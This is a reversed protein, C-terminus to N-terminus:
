HPLRPTSQHPTACSLLCKQTGLGFKMAVVTIPKCVSEWSTTRYNTNKLLSISKCKRWFRKQSVQEPPLDIPFGDYEKKMANLLALTREVDRRGYALEEPTVLGAPEHPLKGELEFSDLYGELSMHRNRLAWGLVSLDLFRGRYEFRNTPDGGALSIFASRSDKPKIRLKPKFRQKRRERWFKMAWGTGKNRAIGYLLALRSLDFPANFCVICAGAVLADWFEGKVFETQLQVRIERPCGSEVDAQKTNVFDQIVKVLGDDLGDAYVIGELQSIYKGEKLECFRWWLFNLDQYIDITTECDIILAFRAWQDPSKWELKPANKKKTAVRTHARLFIPALEPIAM